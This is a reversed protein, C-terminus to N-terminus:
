RPCCRCWWRSSPVQGIVFGYWGASPDPGCCGPSGGNLPLFLTSGSQDLVQGTDADFLTVMGSVIDDPGVVPGDGTEIVASSTTDVSVLPMPFEASTPTVGFEGSAVVDEALGGREVRPTCSSASLATGGDVAPGAPAACAALSLALASVVILGVSKRM